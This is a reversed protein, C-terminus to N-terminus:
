GEDERGDTRGKRALMTAFDSLIKQDHATLQDFDRFLQQVAPGATGPDHSRGLLYDITVSLADALRKLNAFSPSRRGTEFHSIASPELGCRKAVETQTLQRREREARLREAFGRSM